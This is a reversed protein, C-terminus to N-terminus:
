FLLWKYIQSYSIYAPACYVSILLVVSWLWDMTLICVFLFCIQPCFVFSYCFTEFIGYVHICNESLWGDQPQDLYDEKTSLETM